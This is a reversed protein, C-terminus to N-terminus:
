YILRAVEARELCVIDPHLWINDNSTLTQEFVLMHSSTVPRWFRRKFILGMINLNSTYSMGPMRSFNCIHGFITVFWLGRIYRPQLYSRALFFYSSAQLVVMLSPLTEHLKERVKTAVWVGRFNGQTM